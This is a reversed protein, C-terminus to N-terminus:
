TVSSWETSLSSVEVHDGASFNLEDDADAQLIPCHLLISSSLSDHMIDLIFTM